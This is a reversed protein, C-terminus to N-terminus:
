TRAELFPLPVDLREVMELYRDALDADPQAMVHKWYRWAAISLTAYRHLDPLASWEDETLSRVSQYGSLLAQWREEVPENDEWGFGVYAMVLDFACPGVWAEELDLIAAVEGESGLVNDPFLDGHLIGQPLGAPISERLAESEGRLMGPFPSWDNREEALAFMREFLEQGMRFESPFCDASPVQHMRAMIEGLSSLSAADSGLHGAEFYPLLTWAVGDREAYRAGTELMLPVTTPIEHEDIWIHRQIVSEVDEISSQAQWLKLVLRTGDSLELRLNTNDWGGALREVSDVGSLGALGVMWEADELTVEIAMDFRRGLRM